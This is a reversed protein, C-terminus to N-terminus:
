RGDARSDDLAARLETANTSSLLAQRDPQDDGCAALGAAALGLMAVLLTLLRGQRSMAGLIALVERSYAGSRVVAGPLASRRAPASPRCRHDARAALHIPYEVRHFSATWAETDLMLYAARPDGDRPQGVSGPNILWEGEGISWCRATRRSRAAPATATM